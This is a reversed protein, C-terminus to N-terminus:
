FSFKSSLSVGLSNPLLRQEVFRGGTGDDLATWPRASREDLLNQVRLQAEWRVRKKMIFRSYDLWADVNFSKAGYFPQTINFLATGPITKYGIVPEDRWFFASGVAFGKLWGESGLQYRAVGSFQWESTRTQRIGITRKDNAAENAIIDAMQSVTAGLTSNVPTSAKSRWFATNADIYSFVFAGRDAVTTINKSATVMLRLNRTPNGVVQFESGTTRTTKFDGWNPNPDRNPDLAQWIASIAAKKQGTLTNDLVNNQTTSFRDISGLLKGGFLSFKIGLDYGEGETPAAPAGYINVVSQNSPVFNSAKNAYLSVWKTANLVAGASYTRSRSSLSLTSSSHAIDPFVGRADRVYQGQEQVVDDARLGGTFVLLNELLNAQVAGVTANTNTLDDRPTARVREWGSNIGGASIPAWDSTFYSNSGPVFYTRRHINNAANDLRGLTGTNRLPTENVERVNDLLQHVREYTYLAAFNITGFQRGFLHWRNLDLDYSATIRGQADDTPRLVRFAASSEVYPKGAMPNPQGNPLQANADVRINADLASFGQFNMLYQHEFKGAVEVFLSRGIGQRVFLSANSADVTAADGDGWLNTNLPVVASGKFSVRNDIVGAVRYRAGFASSSWDMPAVSTQGGVAVLYGTAVNFDLGPTVVTNGYTPKTPGGATVWPTYADYATVSGGIQSRIRSSEGNITITTESFPRYTAAVYLSRREAKTPTVYRRRDEQLIDLRLSLKDPIIVSNADLAARYSDFSDARLSVSRFNKRLDPANTVIDLGGGPNGVGFVISNPGRTFTFRSTNYTDIPTLANFFNTTLSDSRFGRVTFPTGTRPGNNDTDGDNSQYRATSPMYDLADNFNLAGLDSLMDASLISIASPVDKAQTRLRTGSLTETPAYGQDATETIVFPSLEVPEERSVSPATTQAFLVAASM